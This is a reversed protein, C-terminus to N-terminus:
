VLELAIANFITNIQNGLAAYDALTLSKYGRNACLAFSVQQWVYVLIGVALFGKIAYLERGLTNAVNSQPNYHSATTSLDNRSFMLGGLAGAAGSLQAFKSIDGGIATILSNYEAAVQGALQAYNSPTISTYLRNVFASFCLSVIASTQAVDSCGITPILSDLETAFAEAVDTIADYDSATISPNNRSSLMGGAAGALAANYIEVNNM